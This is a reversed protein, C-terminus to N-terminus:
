FVVQTNAIKLVLGLISNGLSVCCWIYTILKTLVKSTNFSWVSITDQGKLFFARKLHWSPSLPLSPMNKTSTPPLCGQTSPCTFMRRAVMHKSHVWGHPPSLLTGPVLHVKYYLDILIVIIYLFLFIVLIFIIFSCLPVHIKRQITTKDLYISLLPTAPDYTQEINLKRLFQWATEWRPQVLKCEWWYYLLTPVRKEM